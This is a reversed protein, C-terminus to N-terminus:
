NMFVVRIEIAPIFSYQRDLCANSRWTQLCLCCALPNYYFEHIWNLRSHVWPDSSSQDKSKAVTKTEKVNKKVVAKPLGQTPLPPTHIFMGRRYDGSHPTYNQYGASYNYAQPTQQTQQALTQSNTPPISSTSPSQSNSHTNSIPHTNLHTNPPHLQQHNNFQPSYNFMHNHMEPRYQNPTSYADRQM